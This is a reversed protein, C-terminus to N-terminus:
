EYRLADAPDLRAVLVAPYLSCLTTLALIVIVATAIGLAFAAPGVLSTLGFLPLQLVLALGLTM